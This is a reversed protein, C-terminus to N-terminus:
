AQKNILSGNGIQKPGTVCRLPELPVHSKQVAVDAHQIADTLQFTASHSANYFACKLPPAEGFCRDIDAGSTRVAQQYTSANIAEAM